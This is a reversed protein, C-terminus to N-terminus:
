ALDGHINICTDDRDELATATNYTTARFVSTTFAVNGGLQVDGGQGVVGGASWNSNNFVNAFTFDYTGTSIDSASSVNLSDNLAITGTGNLNAWAKALGQQLSQTAAGGESTVTISGASTKGTLNDVLITSM